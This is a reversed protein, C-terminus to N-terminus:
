ASYVCEGWQPSHYQHKPKMIFVQGEVMKLILTWRNIQVFVSERLLRRLKYKQAGYVCEGWQSLLYQHKPKMLFVESEIM